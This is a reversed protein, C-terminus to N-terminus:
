KKVVKAEEKSETIVFDEPNLRQLPIGAWSPAKEEQIFPWSLTGVKTKITNDGDRFRDVREIAEREMHTASGVFLRTSLYSAPNEVWSVYIWLTSKEETGCFLANPARKPAATTVLGFFVVAVALFKKM